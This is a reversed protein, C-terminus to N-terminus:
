SQRVLIQTGGVVVVDGEYLRAAKVAEGNVFVGNSSGLDEVLLNDGSWRIVAHYRSVAPDSLVLHNDPARGINCTSGALPLARSAGEPERVELFPTSGIVPMVMTPERDQGRHQAVAGDHPDGRFEADVTFRGARLDPAVQLEVTPSELYHLQRRTAATILHRELDREIGDRAGEFRGYTAPDLHVVYHDPAVPGSASVLTGDAMSEELRRALHVPHLKKTFLREFTGEVLGGLLREVRDLVNAMDGNHLTEAHEGGCPYAKMLTTVM